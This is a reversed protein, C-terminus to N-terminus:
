LRPFDSFDRLSHSCESNLFSKFVVIRVLKIRSLGQPATAEKATAPTRWLRRLSCHNYAVSLLKDEDMNRLARSRRNAAGQELVICSVVIIVHMVVKNARSSVAGRKWDVLRM